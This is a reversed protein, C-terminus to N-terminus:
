YNSLIAPSPADLPVGAKQKDLEQARTKSQLDILYAHIAAADAPKLEDDWRPMGNALLAGDLVIKNFAAHTGPQM